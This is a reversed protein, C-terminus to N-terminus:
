AHLFGLQANGFNFLRREEFVEVHFANNMRIFNQHHDYFLTDSHINRTAIGVFHNDIVM